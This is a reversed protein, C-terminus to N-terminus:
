NSIHIYILEYYDIFPPLDKCDISDYHSDYFVSWTIDIGNVDLIKYSKFQTLFKDRFYRFEIKQERTLLHFEGVINRVNNVLFEMSEDRFLYYEGGECDTKIFDIHGINYIKVFDMFSITDVFEGNSMLDKLEEASDAVCPNGIKGDLPFRYTGTSHFLAKNITEVNYDLVNNKLVEFANKMPEFSYVREARDLVSWTFPGFSAGLDVVIDGEQIEYVKEYQKQEFIEFNINDIIKEDFNGWKFNEDIKKM